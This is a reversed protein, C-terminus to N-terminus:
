GAKPKIFAPHKDTHDRYTNTRPAYGVADVAYESLLRPAVARRLEQDILQFFALQNKIKVCGNGFRGKMFTDNELRSTCFVFADKVKETRRVANEGVTVVANQGSVEIGSLAVGFLKVCDTTNLSNKGPLSTTTKTGETSDRAWQNEANRCANLTTVRISGRLIM